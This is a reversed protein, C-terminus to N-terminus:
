NMPCHLATGIRSAVPCYWHAAMGLGWGALAVILFPVFTKRALVWSWGVGGTRVTAGLAAAFSGQFAVEALIEPATWVLYIGGGLIAAALAVILVIVLGEGDGLDGVSGLADGAGDSVDLGLDVGDLVDGPGVSMSSAMSTQAPPPPALVAAVAAPAVWEPDEAGQMFTLWIWVFLFFALYSVGVALPYRWAMSRVGWGLMLWNAGLGALTVATLIGFMHARLVYREKVVRVFGRKWGLLVERRNRHGRPPAPM